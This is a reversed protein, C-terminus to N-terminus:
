RNGGQRSGGRGGMGGKGRGGGGGMGGGCRGGGGRGMGGGPFPSGAPMRNGERPSGTNEIKLEEAKVAGETVQSVIDKVSGSKGTLVTVGAANLVMEAKPGLNGTIVQDANQEVVFQAAGIGAGGQAARHTNEFAKFTTKETDIILFYACRGFRPDIESNLDRGVASVAIKM